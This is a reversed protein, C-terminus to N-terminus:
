FKDLIEKDIWTYYDTTLFRLDDFNADSELRYRIIIVAVALLANINNQSKIIIMITHIIPEDFCCNRM